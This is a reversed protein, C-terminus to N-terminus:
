DEARENNKKMEKARAVAMMAMPIHETHMTNLISREDQRLASLIPLTELPLHQLGFHNCLRSAFENLNLRTASARVRHNWIDWANKATNIKAWQIRRYIHALLEIALTRQEDTISM